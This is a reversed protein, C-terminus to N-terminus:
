CGEGLGGVGVGAKAGLGWKGASFCERQKNLVKPPHSIVSLQSHGLSAKRM